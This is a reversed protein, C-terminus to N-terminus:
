PGRVEFQAASSLSSFSQSGSLGTLASYAKVKFYYIGPKLGYIIKSTPAQTGSEYPLTYTLNADGETFGSTTGIYLYYGGGASNVPYEPSATWTLLIKQAALNSDGLTKIKECSANFIGIVFLFLTIFVIKDRRM